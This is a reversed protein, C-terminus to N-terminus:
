YGAKHWLSSWLQRLSACVDSHKYSSLESLVLYNRGGEQGLTRMNSNVGLRRRLSRPLWDGERWAQERLWTSLYGIRSIENASLDAVAAPKETITRITMPSRADSLSWQANVPRPLASPGFVGTVDVGIGPLRVIVLLRISDITEQVTLSSSMMAELSQYRFLLFHGSVLWINLVTLPVSFFYKFATPFSIYLIFQETLYFKLKVSGRIKYSFYKILFTLYCRKYTVSRNGYKRWPTLLTAWQGLVPSM